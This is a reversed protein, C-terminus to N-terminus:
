VRAVEYSAFKADGTLVPIGEGRSQAVLIRDFPDRHIPPLKELEAFHPMRLPLLAIRNKDLHKHVFDAAPLPLVLKGTACKILIEWVSAVSLHLENAGDEFVARQAATLRADGAIAWLFIHTDILVKAL